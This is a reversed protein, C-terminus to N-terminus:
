VGCTEDSILEASKHLPCNFEISITDYFVKNDLKCNPNPLMYRCRYHEFKKSRLKKKSILLRVHSEVKHLLQQFMQKYIFWYLAMCLNQQFNQFNNSISSFSIYMNMRLTDCASASRDVIAFNITNIWSCAVNALILLDDPNKSVGIM